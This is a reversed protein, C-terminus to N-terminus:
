KDRSRLQRGVEDEGRAAIDVNRAAGEESGFARDVTANLTGRLSEGAGQEGNTEDCWRYRQHIGSAIGRIGRGLDSGTQGTRAGSKSGRSVRAEEDEAQARQATSPAHQIREDQSGLRDYSNSPSDPQHHSQHPGGASSKSYGAGTASNYGTTQPDYEARTDQIGIPAGPAGTSSGHSTPKRTYDSM